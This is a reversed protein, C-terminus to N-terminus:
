VNTIEMQGIHAPKLLFLFSTAPFIAYAFFTYLFYVTPSPYFTGIVIDRGRKGIKKVSGKRIVDQM